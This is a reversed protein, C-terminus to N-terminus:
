LGLNFFFESSGRKIAWGLLPHFEIEYFRLDEGPPLEVEPLRFKVRVYRSGLLGQKGELTVIELANVAQTLRALQEKAEARPQESSPATFAGWGKRSLELKLRNAIEVRLHEDLQLPGQQPWFLPFLAFLLLAAVTGKVAPSIRNPKPNM